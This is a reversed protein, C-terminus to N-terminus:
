IQFILNSYTNKRLSNTNDQNVKFIFSIVATITSLTTAKILPVTFTECTQQKMLNIFQILFFLSIQSYVSAKSKINYRKAWIYTRPM